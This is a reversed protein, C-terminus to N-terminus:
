ATEAGFAGAVFRELSDVFAEDDEYIQVLHECPAIEGWFVTPESQSDSVPM